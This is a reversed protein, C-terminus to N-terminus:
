YQLTLWSVVLSIDMVEPSALSAMQPPAMGGSANDRSHRNAAEPISYETGLRSSGSSSKTMVSPTGRTSNSMRRRQHIPMQAQAVQTQVPRHGSQGSQGPQRPREDIPQMPVSRWRPSPDMSQPPHGPYDPYTLQLPVGHPRFDINSDVSHRRGQQSQPIERAEIEMVEEEEEREKEQKRLAGVSLTQKRIEDRENYARTKVQVGNEGVNAAPAPKPAM